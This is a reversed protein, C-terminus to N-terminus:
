ESQNIAINLQRCVEADGLDEWIAAKVISLSPSYNYVDEKSVKYWVPLVLEKEEIIERTFISDFEKKTWGNNSLFNPSLVLICKKCEKLGKEISTRLNDGIKLSYEDFWVPCMMKQLGVAIKRAVEAKDRSDHSIFALPKEIQSRREVYKKSRFQLDHGVSKAHDKLELIKNDIFDTESYIYIRRSAQISQSSVWDPEGWFQALIEFPDENRFQLSGPFSKAAPLTVDGDIHVQTKGYQLHSLLNRFFDLTLSDGEIYVSVFAMFGSFDYYLRAEQSGGEYEFRVKVRVCHSFDTDFYEKLTAM